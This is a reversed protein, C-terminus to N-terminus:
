TAFGAQSVPNVMIKLPNVMSELPTVETKLPNVMSKLPTVETKISKGHSKISKLRRKGTAPRNATGRMAVVFRTFSSSSACTLRLNESSMTSSRKGSPARKSSSGCMNSYIYQYYVYINYMYIYIHIICISICHIDITKHIMDMYVYLACAYIFM